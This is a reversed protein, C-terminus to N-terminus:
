CGIRPTSIRSIHYLSELAKRMAAEGSRSASSLILRDRVEEITRCRTGWGGSVTTGFAARRVAFFIDFVERRSIATVITTVIATVITTVVIIIFVRVVRSM